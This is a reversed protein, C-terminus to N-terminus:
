VAKKLIFGAVLYGRQQALKVLGARVTEFAVAACGSQRAMEEFLALGTDVLGAKSTGAAGDIWLVSPGDGRHIRAVFVGEGDDTQLEFPEGFRVLDAPTAVGRPDLGACPALAQM